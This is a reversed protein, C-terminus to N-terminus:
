QGAELASLMELASYSHASERTKKRRKKKLIHANTWPGPRFYPTRYETVKNESRSEHDLFWLTDKSTKRLCM